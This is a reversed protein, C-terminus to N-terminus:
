FPSNRSDFLVGFVLLLLGLVVLVTSVSMAEEREERATRWPRSLERPLKPDYRDMTMRRHHGSFFALIVLLCGTLYFGLAIARMLPQGAMLGFVLSLAVVVAVSVAVLKGFRALGRTVVRLRENV